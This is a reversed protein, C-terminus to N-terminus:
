DGFILDPTVGLVSAPLPVPQRIFIRGNTNWNPKVTMELDGTTLETLGQMMEILMDSTPGAWLGRTDLVRIMLTAVKKRKGQVTRTADLEMDLTELDCTYPLGVHVRSAATPLTVAGGSVTLGEVVRGNALCVVNKGELHSLGSIATSADRVNGGSSYVAFATGDVDVSDSDKLELTNATVNAAVWGHGNIETMGLVGEIDLIDGNVLGHATATVVVPNARTAATIAVPLDLSLGSDVFFADEVDDFERTNLREIFRKEVNNVTRKVVFYVADENTEAVSCVSEYAGDTTHRSWAYVEHERMYTLALLTGDSRVLWVISHPSEAYGWDVVTQGLFLHDSLVSLDNGTYNDVDFKFTLDRIIRGARQVYIVTSGVILPRVDSAGHYEQPKVHINTPTLVDDSGAAVKWEGGSTMVILDSLPVLHRIENVQQAAITRTIADDAKRPISYTMNHYNAAKSFWQTQPNNSSGAFALRQEYYTVCSPYDGAGSFPNRSNPPSDSLDPTIGEDDFTLTETTGVYGYLGNELRYVNFRDADTVDAFTIRNFNASDPTAHGTSTTGSTALSEEGTEDSYGIVKYTYDTSGTTGQPTVTVSATDALDPAFTITSLTWATHGSRTLERPAYSQHVITMTDASQTFKLDFLDAELFPTVITYIRYANGGSSYAAYGTSNVDTGTMDQLEATNATCNALKYNLGNLETMGVVGSIYVEEGNSYSHGTMTVVVPNARTAATIVQGGEVVQGSDKHVRMYQDGFELVYTQEVNFEFPILRTSKTSDKVEAIFRSGTRNSVGGHAHVFFNKCTKLGVSYKALDVRAHLSPALEGGTFSPQINRTM